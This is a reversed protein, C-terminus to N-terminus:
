AYTASSRSDWSSYAITRTLCQRPSNADYTYKQIMWGTASTSLGRVAYGVYLPLGDTLSNYDIQMQTNDPSMVVRKAAVSSDHENNDTITPKINGYFEGM